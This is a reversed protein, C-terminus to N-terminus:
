APPGRRPATLSPRLAEIRDDIAADCGSTAAPDAGIRRHDALRISPWNTVSRQPTRHTRADCGVASEVLGWRVSPSSLCAGDYRRPARRPHSRACPSRQDPLGGLIVSTWVHGISPVRRLSPKRRQRVHLKSKSRMPPMGCAGALGAGAGVRARGTCGGTAWGPGDFRVGGRAPGAGDTRETTSVGAGGVAGDAASRHRASVAAASWCSDASGVVDCGVVDCGAVVSTSGSVSGHVPRGAV